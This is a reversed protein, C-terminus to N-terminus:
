NEDELGVWDDKDHYEKSLDHRGSTSYVARDRDMCENRAAMKMNYVARKRDTISM